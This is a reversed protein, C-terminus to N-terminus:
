NQHGWFSSLVNEAMDKTKHNEALEDFDHQLQPEQQSEDESIGVTMMCTLVDTCYLHRNRNM